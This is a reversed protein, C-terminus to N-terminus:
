HKRTISIMKFVFNLSVSPNDRSVNVGSMPCTVLILCNGKIHSLVLDEVLQVTTPEANQIIGLWLSGESVNMMM